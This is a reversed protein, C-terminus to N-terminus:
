ADLVEADWMGLNQYSEDSGLMTVCPTVCFWQLYNFNVVRWSRYLVAYASLVLNCLVSM